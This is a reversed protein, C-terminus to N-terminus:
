PLNRIIWWAFWLAVYCLVATRSFLFTRLWGSGPGKLNCAYIALLLYPISIVFFLNYGLAEAFRLHLAAHLARQVGCAPCEFGTMMLMPCKPMWDYGSPDILYYALLIVLATAVIFLRRDVPKIDLSFPRLDFIYIILM